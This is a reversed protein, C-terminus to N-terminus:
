GTALSTPAFGVRHRWQLDTLHRRAGKQPSLVPLFVELTMAGALWSVSEPDDKMLRRFEGAGPEAREV